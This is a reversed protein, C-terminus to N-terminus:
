EACDGGGGVGGGFFFFVFFLFCFESIPFPTLNFFLMISKTRWLKAYGNSKNERPVM